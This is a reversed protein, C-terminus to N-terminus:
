DVPQIDMKWLQMEGAASRVLTLREIAKGHEYELTFLLVHTRGVTSDLGTQYAIENANKLSGLGEHFAKMQSVFQSASGVTKFRPASEDYIAAFEGSRLHAHVGDAVTKAQARDQEGACGALVVASALVALLANIQKLSIRM